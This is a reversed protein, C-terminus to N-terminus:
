GALGDGEGLDVFPFKGMGGFVRVLWCLFGVMGLVGGCWGVGVGAGTPACLRAGGRVRGFVLLFVAFGGRRGDNQAFRLIGGCGVLGDGEGLDVFPFRAMGGLYGFWSAFFRLWGWCAGADGGVRGRVRLPACGHAGGAYVVLCWCSFWLGVGGDTMGLLGGAVRLLHGDNQAFRLIGGCAVLGDGEGLDVFPFKAM